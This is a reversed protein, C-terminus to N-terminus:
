RRWAHYLFSGSRKGTLNTAKGSGDAKIRYIDFDKIPGMWSGSAFSLYQGDPSFNPFFNMSSGTTKKSTVRTASGGWSPITFVDYLFTGRYEILQVYAIRDGLPSFAPHGESADPTNTVNVSTGTPLHYVFIDAQSGGTSSPAGGVYAIRQGDGSWSMLVEGDTPIILRLGTAEFPRSDADRKVDALYLGSDEFEGSTSNWRRAYVAIQGGDPSWHPTSSFQVDQEHSIVLSLNCDEDAAALQSTQSGDPLVIGTLVARLFYRPSGDYTLDGGCDVAAFQGGNSASMVVFPGWQNAAVIVEGVVAAQAASTFFALTCLAKRLNGSM